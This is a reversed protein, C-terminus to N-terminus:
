GSDTSQINIPERLVRQGILTRWMRCLPLLSDGAIFRTFAAEMVVSRSLLVAFRTSRWMELCASAQVLASHSTSLLSRKMQSGGIGLEKPFLFFISSSQKSLVIPLHMQGDWSEVHEENHGMPHSHIHWEYAYEYRNKYKKNKVLASIKLPIRNWDLWPSRECWSHPLLKYNNWRWRSCPVSKLGPSFASLFIPDWRYTQYKQTRWLWHRAVSAKMSTSMFNNCKNCDAPLLTRFLQRWWVRKM